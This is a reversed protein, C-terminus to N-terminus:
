NSITWNAWFIAHHGDLSLGMNVSQTSAPTNTPWSSNGKDESRQENTMQLWCWPSSPQILSPHPICTPGCHTTESEAILWRKDALQCEPQAKECEVWRTRLRLLLLCRLEPVQHLVHSSLVLRWM